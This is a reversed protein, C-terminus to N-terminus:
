SASRGTSPRAAGTASWGRAPLRPVLVSFDLEGMGSGICAQVLQQVIATVPVPVGAAGACEVVLRLDKHMMAASFTSTYDEAVLPPAKYKVFPSGVVSGGIVELMRARGLGHAEGMVLAEALLQTTGALMLNLALKMVRAEEGAGLELLAPGIAELVPRAGAFAAADGSALIALHGAACGM